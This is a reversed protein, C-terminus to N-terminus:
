RSTAVWGTDSRVLSNLIMKVVQLLARARFNPAYSSSGIDTNAKTEKTTESAAVWDVGDSEPTAIGARRSTSM